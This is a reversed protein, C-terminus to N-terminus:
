VKLVQVLLGQARCSTGSQGLRLFMQLHSIKMNLLLMSRNLGFCTLTCSHITYITQTHSHAITLYTSIIIYSGTFLSGAQSTGNCILLLLQSLVNLLVINQQVPCQNREAEEGLDPCKQHSIGMTEKTWHTGLNKRSHTHCQLRRMRSHM